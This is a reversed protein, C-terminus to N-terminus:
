ESKVIKSNLYSHLLVLVDKPNTQSEGEKTQGHHIYYFDRIARFLTWEEESDNNLQNFESWLQYTKAETFKRAEDSCNKYRSISENILLQRQFALEAKYQMVEENFLMDFKDYDKILEYFFAYRSIHYALLQSEFVEMDGFYHYFSSRNLGVLNSLKEVNFAAPGIQGFFQYGTLIWKQKNDLDNKM